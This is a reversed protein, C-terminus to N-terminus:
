SYEISSGVHVFIYIAKKLNINHILNSSTRLSIVFSIFIRKVMGIGVDSGSLQKETNFLIFVKRHLMMLWSRSFASATNAVSFLNKVSRRVNILFNNIKESLIFCFLISKVKLYSEIQTTFHLVDYTLKPYINMFLISCKNWGKWKM